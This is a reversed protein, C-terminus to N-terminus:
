VATRELVNRWLPFKDRRGAFRSERDLTNHKFSPALGLEVVSAPSKQTEEFLGSAPLQTWHSFVLL